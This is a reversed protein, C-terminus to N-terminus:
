KKIKERLKKEAEDRLRELQELYWLARRQKDTDKLKIIKRRLKKPDYARKIGGDRNHWVAFTDVFIINGDPDYGYNLTSTDVSPNLEELSKVLSIYRQDRHMERSRAVDRTEMVPDPSGKQRRQILYESLKKHSDDLDVFETHITRPQSTARHVDPINKPFLLHLIKTLYFQGKIREPSDPYKFVKEVINPREASRFVRAEAGEGILKKEAM